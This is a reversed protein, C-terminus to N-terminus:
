AHDPVEELERDVTPPPAAEERRDGVAFGDKRV